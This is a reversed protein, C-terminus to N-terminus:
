LAKFKYGKKTYFELMKPLAYRLNSEAKKNDHFVIINGKKTYNLINKLCKEKITNKDFDASLISWMILKYGKKILAKAQKPKIKGYPPRFLKINQTAMASPIPAEKIRLREKAFSDEAMQVNAIYEKTNTKWGNLHHFTHNGIRHNQKLIELFIDPHKKVNDGVCFFTAKANFQNLIKLVWPTLIPIPGDDFTLFIEKQNTKFGWVYNPFLEQIIKPTKVFYPNM